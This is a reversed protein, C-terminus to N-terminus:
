TSQLLGLRSRAHHWFLLSLFSHPGIRFYQAVLGKYFARLGETRSIKVVCDLYSSYMRAQFYISLQEFIVQRQPKEQGKFKRTCYSLGGRRGQGRPFDEFFPIFFKVSSPNLFQEVTFTNSLRWSTYFYFTLIHLSIFFCGIRIHFM